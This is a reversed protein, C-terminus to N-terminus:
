RLLLSAIQQLVYLWSCTCIVRWTEFLDSSSKLSKLSQHNLSHRRPQHHGLALPHYHKLKPYRNQLRRIARQLRVMLQFAVYHFLNFTHLQKSNKAVNQLSDHQQQESPTNSASTTSSTPTTGNCIDKTNAPLTSSPAMSSTSQQYNTEVPYIM